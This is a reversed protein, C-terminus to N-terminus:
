AAEEKADTLSLLSKRNVFSKSGFWLSWLAHAFKENAISGVSQDNILIEINGGPLWRLTHVDGKRVDQTFFSLYQNIESQLEQFQQDALANKFSELYGDRVRKLDGDHVWKLTLQKAWADSMIEQLIDGKGIAENQLYSAVSYVKVFFKKRTAVGTIDLDYNKGDHSFSVQKPFTVGTASSKIHPEAQLPLFFLGALLLGLFRIVVVGM